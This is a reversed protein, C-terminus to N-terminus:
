DTQLRRWRHLLVLKAAYAELEQAEFSYWQGHDQIWEWRAKDLAELAALPDLASSWAALAGTFDASSDALEPTVLYAM